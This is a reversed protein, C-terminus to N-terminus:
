PPIVFETHGGHMRLPLLRVMLPFPSQSVISRIQVCSPRSTISDIAEIDGFSDSIYQKSIAFEHSASISVPHKTQNVLDVDTDGLDGIRYLKRKLSM